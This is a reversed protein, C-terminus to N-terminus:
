YDALLNLKEMATEQSKFNTHTYCDLTTSIKSHGLIQSVTNIPVSASVLYTACSHRLDHFRMEDLGCDRLTKKFHKNLTTASLIKGTSQTFVYGGSNFSMQVNKWELLKDYIIDPLMLVRNSKDTKCDSFVFGNKQPTATRQIHVVRNEFDIDSWMLGLIEGRRLGLVLALLIPLAIKVDYSKLYEVYLTMDDGTICEMENKTKRPPEIMDCPNFPLERRKVGTEFAKHLVRYVYLQSTGGLGKETLDEFLKDLVSANIEDLYYDGISTVIHNYINVRYGNITNDALGKRVAYTELWNTLYKSLKVHNVFVDERRLKNNYDKLYREAEKKTRFGSIWQQKREGSTNYAYVVVSYSKGRKVISGTM